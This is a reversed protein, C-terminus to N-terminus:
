PLFLEQALDVLLPATAPLSAWALWRPGPRPMTWRPGRGAGVGPRPRELWRADRGPNPYRDKPMDVYENNEHAVGPPWLPEPRFQIAFVNHHVRVNELGIGKHLYLQRGVFTNHRIEVNRIPGGLPPKRHRWPSLLKVQASNIGPCPHLFLNHEIVVPGTLVPSTGLSEHCDYVLNDHFRVHRAHGDFEIADDTCYAILNHSIDAGREVPASDTSVHLADNAHVVLNSQAVTGDGWTRILQQDGIRRYLAPKSLWTRRWEAQPYNHYACRVVQVNNAAGFGTLGDIGHRAGTFLCDRAVIHSGDWLALGAGVGFDFRLGDFEIYDGEVWVNAARWVGNALREPLPGHITADPLHPRDDPSLWLHLRGEGCWFASWAGQRQTLTGLDSLNRCPLLEKGNIRVRYVPWSTTTAFVGPRAAPTWVLARRAAQASEGTVVSTGPTSAKVRIPRGPRGSCRIRIRERFRGPLLVITDGPRARDVAHQITAFARDPKTGRHFNSGNPGVFMVKSHPWLVDPRCAVAGAAVVALLAAADAVAKRMGQKADPKRTQSM